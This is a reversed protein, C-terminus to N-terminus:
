TFPFSLWPYTEKGMKEQTIPKVLLGQQGPDLLAVSTQVRIYM